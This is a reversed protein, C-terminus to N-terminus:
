KVPHVPGQSAVRKPAPAAAMPPNRGAAGCPALICQDKTKKPRASGGNSTHAREVHHVLEM